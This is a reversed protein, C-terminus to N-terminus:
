AVGRVCIEVVIGNDVEEVVEVEDIFEAGTASRESTPIEALDGALTLM